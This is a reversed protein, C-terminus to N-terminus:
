NLFYTSWTGKNKLGVEGRPKFSGDGELYDKTKESIHIKGSEGSSKLRASINVSDGWIDFTNGATGAILPDSHIGIRLEWRPIGLAEFKINTCEVFKLMDAAASCVEHTHSVQQSPIGCVCMYCDGVKKVKPVNHKSM